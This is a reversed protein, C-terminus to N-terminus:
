GDERGREYGERYAALRLRLIEVPLGDRTPTLGFACRDAVLATGNSVM